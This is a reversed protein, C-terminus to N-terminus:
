LISLGCYIGTFYFMLNTILYVNFLHFCKYLKFYYKYSMVIAPLLLLFCPALYLIDMLSRILSGDEKRISEYYLNNREVLLVACGSALVIFTGIHVVEAYTLELVPVEPYYDDKGDQGEFWPRGRYVVKRNTLYTNFSVVEIVSDDSLDKLIYDFLFISGRRSGHNIAISSIELPTLSGINLHLQSCFTNELLACAFRITYGLLIDGPRLIEVDLFTKNDFTSTPCGVRIVMQYEFAANDETCLILITDEQSESPQLSARIFEYSLFSLAFFLLIATITAPLIVGPHSQSSSSLMENDDFTDALLRVDEFSFTKYTKYTLSSEAFLTM